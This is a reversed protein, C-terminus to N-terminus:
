QEQEIYIRGQLLLRIHEPTLPGTVVCKRPTYKDSWCKGLIKFLRYRWSNYPIDPVIEPSPKEISLVDKLRERDYPLVGHIITINNKLDVIVFVTHPISNRDERICFRVTASISEFDRIRPYEKGMILIARYNSSERNGM